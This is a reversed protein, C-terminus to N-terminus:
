CRNTPYGGDTATLLSTCRSFPFLEYMSSASYVSNRRFNQPCRSHARPYKAALLPFTVSSTMMAYM